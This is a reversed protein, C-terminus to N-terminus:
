FDESDVMCYICFYIKVNRQYKNDIKWYWDTWEGNLLKPHKARCFNVNAPMDPCHHTDTEIEANLREANRVIEDAMEKTDRGSILDRFIKDIDMTNDPTAM